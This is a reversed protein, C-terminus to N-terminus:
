QTSSIWQDRNPARGWISKHYIVENADIMSETRSIDIFTSAPRESSRWKGVNAPAQFYLAHNFIAKDHVEGDHVHVTPFFLREPARTRFEFAMPHITQPIIAPAAFGKLKFVAFGWDRYDPLRDWAQSPLRFRADLRTFDDQHPVFSAEFAGVDHVRLTPASQCYAAPIDDGLSLVPFASSMHEFLDPYRELNIFRVADDDAHPLVPLPLIMAVDDIAAVTMAYILLQTDDSGARVFINTDSVHHIPASFICV